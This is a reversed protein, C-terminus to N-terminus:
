GDGAARCLAMVDAQDKERLPIGTREQYELKTSLICEISVVPCRVEELVRTESELSHEPLPWNNWRGRGVIEGQQNVALFYLEVIQGDKSWISAEASHPHDVLTYGAADVITGARPGDHEWILFEVDGHERTVSGVHFDVSWGGFLWHAIQACSLLRSVGHVLPLQLATSEGM